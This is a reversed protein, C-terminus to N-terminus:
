ILIRAVWASLPQPAADDPALSEALVRLQRSLAAMQEIPERAPGRVRACFFTRCGFPRNAYVSCRRGSADLFPCGGDARPPPVTGGTREMLALWEPLYLWPERRTVSLQCCEGSAPCSFPAYAADAKRYLARLAALAARVRHRPPLGSTKPDREDDDPRM